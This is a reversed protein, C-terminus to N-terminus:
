GYSECGRGDGDADLNHPDGYAHDVLVKQGIDACDLDPPPPPLCPSYGTSCGPPPPPPPPPAPTCTKDPYVADAHRYKARRPHSGYSGSDYRADAYGRVIQRYGVDLRRRQVYRLLRGYHDTNDRGLVKVLRIRSGAPARRAANQKAQRYCPEGREPTDMGILRVTGRSTVVTDGDIWYRVTARRSTTAAQAETPVLGGVCIATLAVAPVIRKLNM